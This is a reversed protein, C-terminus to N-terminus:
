PSPASADPAHAHRSPARTQPPPTPARTAGPNTFGHLADPYNEFKFDVGADEMEKKFAAISEEGVMKDAAGNCVLIKAKVTGKEAKKKAGLSGHFSVVGDLDTGARAMHLVVGGGFCYGIAATKEPDSAPHDHLVKMAATFRAEAAELDSLAEKAFAGADKPHAAKKGDGYMDIAMAVYGLEALMSARKEAYDNLGWWEHVVLIGPRKEKKSSDWYITGDMTVGGAKYKTKTAAMQAPLLGLFLGSVTLGFILRKMM